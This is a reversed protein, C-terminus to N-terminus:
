LCFWQTRYKRHIGWLLVIPNLILSVVFCKSKRCLCLLLWWFPRGCVLLPRNQIKNQWNLSHLCLVDELVYRSLERKPIKCFFHKTINWHETNTTPCFLATHSCYSLWLTLYHSFLSCVLYHVRASVNLHFCFLLLVRGCRGCTNPDLARSSITSTFRIIERYVAAGLLGKHGKCLRYPAVSGPFGSVDRRTASWKM